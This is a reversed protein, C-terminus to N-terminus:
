ERSEEIVLKKLSDKSFLHFARNNAFAVTFNPYKWLTYSAHIGVPSSITEPEGYVARVQDTSKWRIQEINQAYSTTVTFFTLAIALLVKLRFDQNLQTTKMRILTAFFFVALCILLLELLCRPKQKSKAVDLWQLM